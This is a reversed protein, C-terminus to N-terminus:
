NKIWIYINDGAKIGKGSETNISYYGTIIM